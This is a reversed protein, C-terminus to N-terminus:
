EPSNDDWYARESASLSKDFTRVWQFLSKTNGIGRHARLNNDSHTTFYGYRAGFIFDAAYNGLSSSGSWPIGSLIPSNVNDLYVDYTTAGFVLWLTHKGMINGISRKGSYVPTAGNTGIQQGLDGPVSLFGTQGDTGLTLGFKPSSPQLNMETDTLYLIYSESLQRGSHMETGPKILFTNAVGPITAMSVEHNGNLVTTNQSNSSLTRKKWVLNTQNFEIVSTRAGYNQSWYNGPIILTNRQKDLIFESRHFSTYSYASAGTGASHTFVGTPSTAVLNDILFCQDQTSYSIAQAKSTVYWWNDTSFYGLLLLRNNVSDFSMIPTNVAFDTDMLNNPNTSSNPNSACFKFESAPDYDFDSVTKVEKVSYSNGTKVLFSLKPYSSREYKKTMSCRSPNPSAFTYPLYAAAGEPKLAVAGDFWTTAATAYNGRFSPYDDAGSLASCLKDPVLQNSSAINFKSWLQTSSDFEYVRNIRGRGVVPDPDNYASKQIQVMTDVGESTKVVPQYLNHTQDFYQGRQFRGLLRNSWDDFSTKINAVDSLAFTRRNWNGNVFTFQRMDSGLNYLIQSLSPFSVFQQAGSPSYNLSSERWSSGNWLYVQSGTRNAAGSFSALLNNSGYMVLERRHSDFCPQSGFATQPANSDLNYVVWNAPNSDLPNWEYIRHYNAEWNQGFSVAIRQKNPDWWSYMFSHTKYSNSLASNVIQTFSTGNWKWIDLNRWDNNSYNSISIFYVGKATGTPISILSTNGGLVTSPQPFQAPTTYTAEWGNTESFHYVKDTRAYLPWNDGRSYRGGVMMMKNNFPDWVMAQGFFRGLANSQEQDGTPGAHIRVWGKDGYEWTDAMLVNAGSPNVSYGGFLMVKATKPNYALQPYSRPFPSTGAQFGTYIEALNKGDWEQFRYARANDVNGGMWYDRGRNGNNGGTQGGLFYCKKEYENFVSQAGPWGLNAGTQNRNDWSNYYALRAGDDLAFLGSGPHNQFNASDPLLEFRFAMTTDPSPLFQSPRTARIYDSQNVLSAWGPNESSRFAGVKLPDEIEGPGFQNLVEHKTNDSNTLEYYSKLYSNKTVVLNSVANNTDVFPCSLCSARVLFYWSGETVVTSPSGGVFLNTDASDPDHLTDAFTIKQYVGGALLESAVNSRGMYVEYFDIDGQPITSLKLRIKSNGSNEWRENLNCPETTGCVSSGSQAVGSFSIQNYSPLVCTPTKQDTSTSFFPSTQYGSRVVYCTWKGLELGSDNYTINSTSSGVRGVVSRPSQGFGSFNQNPSSAASVAAIASNKDLHSARFIFFKDWFGTVNGMISLSASTSQGPNRTIDVTNIGDGIPTNPRLIRFLEATEGSSYETTINNATHLYVARVRVYYTTHAVLATASQQQINRSQIFVNLKTRDNSEFAVENFSFSPDNATTSVAVQYKSFVGSAEPWTVKLQTFGNVSDPVNELQAIGAFAPASVSPTVCRINTNSSMVFNNAGDRYAARVLFCVQVGVPLKGNGTFDQSSTGSSLDYLQHTTTNTFETSQIVGDSNLTNVFEMVDAQTGQVKFLLFRNFLGGVQPDSHPADWSVNVEGIDTLFVFPNLGSHIPGMPTTTGTRQVVDGASVIETGAVYVARIKVYYLTNRSLQPVPNILINTTNRDGVIPTWNNPDPSTSYAYEYRTFNGTAATWKAELANFGSPSVPTKLESIGAFNPPQIVVDTCAISTNPSAVFGEQGCYSAKVLYCVRSGSTLGSSDDYTLSSTNTVTHYPSELYPDPGTCTPSSSPVTSATLLESEASQGFKRFIHYRNFLGGNTPNRWNVRVQTDSIQTATLAGDGNPALPSTTFRVFAASGSYLNQTPNAVFFRARVRVYYTTNPSLGSFVHILSTRSSYSITNGGQFFSGSSTDSVFDNTTSYSLQYDTFSGEAQDWSVTAQTFALGGEGLTVNGKIGAFVPPTAEPTTCKFGSPLPESKIQPKPTYLALITFCYRTGTTLGVITYSKSTSNNIKIGTMGPPLASLDSPLVFTGDPANVPKYLIQFSDFVGSANPDVWSVNVTNMGAEGSAPAASSLGEFTPAVEDLTSASKIVRNEEYAVILTGEKQIARVVYSYTTNISHGGVELFTVTSPVETCGPQAPSNWNGECSSFNFDFNSGTASNGQVRFVRYHTANAAPNWELRLTNLGSVGSKPTVNQLGAFAPGPVSFTTVSKFISNIDENGAADTVKVIFSYNSAPTLNTVQYNDVWRGNADKPQLISIPTSTNSSNYIRIQSVTDDTPETGWFLQISTDSVAYAATLGSFTPPVVDRTEKIIQNQDSNGAEDVARVLFYWTDRTPPTITLSTIGGTLVTPTTALLTSISNSTSSYIKYLIKPQGTRNDTAADWSLQISTGNMPANKIGGFNPSQTDPTISKVVTNTDAANQSDVARVLFHAFFSPDINQVTDGSAGPASIKVLTGAAVSSASEDQSLSQLLYINYKIQNSPDKDDSASPWNLTVKGDSDPGTVLSLGGFTPPKNGTFERVERNSDSINSEDFVRVGFFYSKASDAIQLTQSTVQGKISVIVNNPQFLLDPIHTPISKTPDGGTETGPPAEIRYIKYTLLHGPTRDDTAEAWKLTVSKQTASELTTAGTFNPALNTTLSLEDQNQSELGAEDVARVVYTYEVSFDVTGDQFQQVNRGLEATRTSSNFVRVPTAQNLAPKLFRYIRYTINETKSRDDIGPNWKIEISRTSGSVVALSFINSSGFTPPNNPSLLIPVGVPSMTDAEDVARVLYYYNRDVSTSLDTFNRVGPQTSDIPRAFDFSEVSSSESRFIRYTILNSPTVDDIASAWQIKVGQSDKDWFVNPDSSLTPPQNAGLFLEKTNKDEYNFDDIARVVYAYSKTPDISPDEIRLVGGQTEMLASSYNFAGNVAERRYVRYRIASTRTVDDVAPKWSLQAVVGLMKVSDIGAFLPPTEGTGISLVNTNTDQNGFNDTARVAYYYTKDSLVNRSDVFSNLGTIEALPQSSYNIGSASEARFIKYVMESTATQDGAHDWNLVVSPLNNTRRISIAKLGDFVPPVIDIPLPKQVLNQDKNNREDRAKVLYYFIVGDPVNSDTYALEGPNTTAYPNAFDFTWQKPARFIDYKISSSKSINDTAPDWNLIAKFKGGLGVAQSVTGILSNNPVASISKLGDFRPPESDETTEVDARFKEETLCLEKTNSDPNSFLLHNAKIKYCRPFISNGVLDETYSGKSTETFAPNTPYENKEDGIKRYIEYTIGTIPVQTWRIVIRGREDAGVSDIGKFLWNHDNLVCSKRTLPKPTDSGSAVSTVSYCIGAGFPISSTVVKYSTVGPQHRITQIPRSKKIELAKLLPVDLATGTLQKLKEPDVEEENLYYDNTGAIGQFDVRVTGNETRSAAVVGASKLEGSDEGEQLIDSPSKKSCQAALLGYLFMWGLKRLHAHIHKEHYFNNREM